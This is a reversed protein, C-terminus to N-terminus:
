VLKGPNIINNPDFTKKLSKLIELKKNNVSKHFIERKIHGIGHEASISGNLRKVILYIEKTISTLSNIKEANETFVNLHINGDGIHGFKM